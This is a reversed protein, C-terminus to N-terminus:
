LLTYGEEFAEAPSWAQYGNKYLVWYGGIVGARNTPLRKRIFEEDVPFPAYGQEVPTIIGGSEGGDVLQLDAIKLAWVTKHCKYEPLARAAQTNANANM